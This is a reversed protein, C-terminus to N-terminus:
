SDIVDETRQFFELCSHSARFAGARFRLSYSNMVDETSVVHVRYSDKRLVLSVCEYGLERLVPGRHGREIRQSFQLCASTAFALRRRTLFCQLSPNRGFSRNSAGFAGARLRLSYSDIVDETRQFFELCASTALALRRWTLKTSFCMDQARLEHLVPGRHGKHGFACFAKSRNTEFPRNSAQVCVFCIPISPTKLEVSM